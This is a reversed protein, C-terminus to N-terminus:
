IENTNSKFKFRVVKFLKTGVSNNEAVHHISKRIQEGHDAKIQFIITNLLM